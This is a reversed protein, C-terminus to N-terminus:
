RYKEALHQRYEEPKVTVGKAMARLSRLIPTPAFRPPNTTVDLYEEVLRSVSIGRKKAYRKARLVVAEDMTLTLKAAM